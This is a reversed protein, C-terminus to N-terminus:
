VWSGASVTGNNASSKTAAVTTGSVDRFKWEEVLATATDSLDALNVALFHRQYMRKAESQTLKRNYLRGFRHTTVDTGVWSGSSIRAGFSMTLGATATIGNLGFVSMPLRRWKVPVGNIYLIWEDTGDHTYLIHYDEWPRLIIGTRWRKQKSAATAEASFQDSTCIELGGDGVTHAMAFNFSGSVPTGRSGTTGNGGRGMIFVEGTADTISGVWELSHAGAISLSADTGCSIRATSTLRVGGRVTRPRVTMDPSPTEYLVALVYTTGATNVSADAGITVSSGTISLRSANLASNSGSASSSGMGALWFEMAQAAQPIVFAAAIDAQCQVTQQAGTGIYSSLEWYTGSRHLSFCHTAEGLNGGDNENVAVNTSLSFTGESAVTLLTNDVAVATDKKSWTPTAWVGEHTASAADRKIYVLEPYTGAILDMSVTNSTAGQNDPAGVTKNRFGNWQFTRLIGSGNDKIAVYYYTTGNANLSTFSAPLRIGTKILLPFVGADGGAVSVNGFGIAGGTWTDRTIFVAYQSAGKVIVLDADFGLEVMSDTATGTWSGSVIIPKAGAPVAVRVSQGSPGTLQRGTSDNWHNGLGTRKPYTTVTM